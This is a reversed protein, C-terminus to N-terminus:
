SARVITTQTANASKWKERVTHLTSDVTGKPINLLTAIQQNTADMRVGSLRKRMNLFRKRANELYHTLKAHRATGEYASSLRKEYALCRYYQSHIKDQLERIYAERKSRMEHLKDILKQLEKKELGVTEAIRNLYDDTIFYYSKLVLFLIQRPSIKAHAICTRAAIEEPSLNKGVAEKRYLFELGMSEDADPPIKEPYEPENSCTLIEEARAKWFVYETTKHEAERIKYEKSSWQVISSIYTDFSAERDKYYDIARSLRPYFWGLFDVWKEREGNFLHHWDFKNLLYQFILGELMKREM